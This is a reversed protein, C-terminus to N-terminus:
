CFAIRTVQGIWPTLKGVEPIAECGVHRCLHSANRETLEKRLGKSLARPEAFGHSQLHCSNCSVAGNQSLMRDHFLVRGLQAVENYRPSELATPFQIGFVPATQSRYEPATEPLVPRQPGQESIAICGTLCVTVLLAVTAFSSAFTCKTM